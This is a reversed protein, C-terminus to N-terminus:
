TSPSPAQQSAALSALSEFREKLADMLSGPMAKFFDGYQAQLAWRLFKVMTGPKGLFHAKWAAGLELEKEGGLNVTAETFMILIAARVDPHDMHKLAEGVVQAFAQIVVMLGKSKDPVPGSAAAQMAPGAVLATLKTGHMLVLEPNLPRLSYVLGDITETAFAM